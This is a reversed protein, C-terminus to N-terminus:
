GEKMMTSLEEARGKVQTAWTSDMMEKSAKVYDEGELAALMKKFKLFRALGLNFCMNILVNQRAIELEKFCPVNAILERRSAAIDNDLMFMAEKTSIGRDDLNRGVGITNKGASCQYMKNRMGEHRILMNRISEM